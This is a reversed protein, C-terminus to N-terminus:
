PIDITISTSPRSFNAVSAMAITNNLYSMGTNPNIPSYATVIANYSGSPLTLTISPPAPFAVDIIPQGSIAIKYGGGPMNVDAELNEEWNLTVQHVTAAPATGGGGGGGGGCAVLLLATCLILPMKLTPFMM